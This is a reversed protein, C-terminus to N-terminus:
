ILELDCTDKFLTLKFIEDEFVNKHQSPESSKLHNLEMVFIHTDKIKSIDKGELLIIYDNDKFKLSHIVIKKSKTVSGRFFIFHSFSYKLNISRDTIEVSSPEGRYWSIEEFENVISNIIEFTNM